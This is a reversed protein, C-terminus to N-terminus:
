PDDRLYSLANLLLDFGKRPDSGRGMEGFLLLPVNAPLDLLERTVNQDMPKSRDSDVRSSGDTIPWSSVDKLHCCIV